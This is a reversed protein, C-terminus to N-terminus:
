GNPQRRTALNGPPGRTSRPGLTSVPRSAPPCRIPLPPGRTSRPGLTSVTTARGIRRGLRPGRTSRPGLTSVVAVHVPWPCPCAPGPNVPTRANFCRTARRPTNTNAPPGRTSRPGLTSVDKLPGGVGVDLPPGRTSRPGLTSVVLLERLERVRLAPGPNVPTRANFRRDLTRGVIDLGRPGRTSRPGLTSVGPLVQAARERFGRAGPQGPDSRQFLKSTSPWGMWGSAPGPNVPTRANFRGRPGRPHTWSPAPGPNVPTRANFCIRGDCPQGAPAAPGPNVPTRANFRRAALARAVRGAPGPNVPTRANFCGIFLALIQGRQRAGPQGPDSRQFRLSLRAPMWCRRPGRTSRPGLTSVTPAVTSAPM